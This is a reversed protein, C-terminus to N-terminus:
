NDDGEDFDNDYDITTHDKDAERDFKQWGGDEHLFYHLAHPKQIQEERKVNGQQEGDGDEDEDTGDTVTSTHTVDPHEIKRWVGNDLWYDVHDPNQVQVAMESRPSKVSHHSHHERHKSLNAKGHSHHSTSNRTTTFNKFLTHNHHRHRGLMGYTTPVAESLAALSALVVSVIAIKM